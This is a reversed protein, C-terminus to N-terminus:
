PRGACSRGGAADSGGGWLAGKRAKGKKTAKEKETYTDYSVSTLGASPAGVFTTTPEAPGKGDAAAPADGSSSARVEDDQDFPQPPGGFGGHLLGSKEHEPTININVESAGSTYLVKRGEGPQGSHARRLPEAPVEKQPSMQLLLAAMKSTRRGSRPFSLPIPVNLVSVSAFRCRRRRDPAARTGWRRAHRCVKRGGSRLALAAAATTWVISATRKRRPRLRTRTATLRPRLLARPAM